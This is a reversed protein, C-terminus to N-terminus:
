HINNNNNNNKFCSAQSAIVVHCFHTSQCELGLLNVKPLCMIVGRSEAEKGM